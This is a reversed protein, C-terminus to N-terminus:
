HKAFDCYDRREEGCNQNFLTQRMELGHGRRPLWLLHIYITNWRMKRSPPETVRRIWLVSPAGARDLSFYCWSAAHWTGEYIMDIHCLRRMANSQKCEEGELVSAWLTWISSWGPTPPPWRCGQIYKPVRMCEVAGLVCTSCILLVDFYMLTLSHQELFIVGLLDCINWANGVNLHSRLYPYHQWCEDGLIWSSPLLYGEQFTWWVAWLNNIRWTSM